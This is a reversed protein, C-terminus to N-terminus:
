PVVYIWSQKRIPKQPWSIAISLSPGSSPKWNVSLKLFNTTLSNLPPSPM